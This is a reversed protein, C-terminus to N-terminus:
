YQQLLCPLSFIVSIYFKYRKWPRCTQFMTSSTYTSSILSGIALLLLKSCWKGFVLIVCPFLNVKNDRTCEDPALFLYAQWLNVTNDMFGHLGLIMWVILWSAPRAASVACLPIVCFSPKLGIVSVVPFIFWGAIYDSFSLYAKWVFLWYIKIISQRWRKRLMKVVALSDRRWILPMM